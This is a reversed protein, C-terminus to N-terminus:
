KVVLRTVAVIRGNEDRIATEGTDPSAVSVGEPLTAPDIAELVLSSVILLSEPEPVIGLDVTDFRRRIVEFGCLVGAPEEVTKVRAVTGSPNVTTECITIPHPTLNIIKKM